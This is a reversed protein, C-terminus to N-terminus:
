VKVRGPFNKQRCGKLCRFRTLIMDRYLDDVSNWTYGMEWKILCVKKTLLKYLM